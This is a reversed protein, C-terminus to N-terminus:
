SYIVSGVVPRASRLAYEVTGPTGHRGDRRTRKAVCRGGEAGRNFVNHEFWSARIFNVGVYIHCCHCFGGKAALLSM